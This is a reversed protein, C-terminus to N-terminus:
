ALFTNAHNQEAQDRNLVSYGRGATDRQHQQGATGCCAPRNISPSKTFLDLRNLFLVGLGNSIGLLNGISFQKLLLLRTLFELIAERQLVLLM